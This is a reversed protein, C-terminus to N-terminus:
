IRCSAPPAPGTQKPPTVPHEKYVEKLFRDREIYEVYIM